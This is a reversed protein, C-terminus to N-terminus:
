RLALQRRPSLGRRPQRLGVPRCRVGCSAAAALAFALTLAPVPRPPSQPCYVHAVLAGLAARGAARLRSGQLAQKPRALSLTSVEGGHGKPLKVEPLRRHEVGEVICTLAPAWKM